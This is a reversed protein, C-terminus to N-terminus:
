SFDLRMLYSERQVIGGVKERHKERIHETHSVGVDCIVGVKRLRNKRGRDLCRQLLRTLEGQGPGWSKYVGRVESACIKIIRMSIKCFM